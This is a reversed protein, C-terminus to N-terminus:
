GVIPPEMEAYSQTIATAPDFGLSRLVDPDLEEGESAQVETIDGPAFPAGDGDRILTHRDQALIWGNPLVYFTRHKTVM